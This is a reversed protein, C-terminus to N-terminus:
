KMIMLLVPKELGVFMSTTYQLWAVKIGENPKTFHVLLLLM